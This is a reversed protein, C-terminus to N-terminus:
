LPSGMAARFRCPAGASAEARRVLSWAMTRTRRIVANIPVPAAAVAMPSPTSTAESVVACEAAAVVPTASWPDDAAEVDVVSDVDVVADDDAPAESPEVVAVVVGVVVVVVAGVVVVWLAVVV